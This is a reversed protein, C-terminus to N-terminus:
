LTVKFIEIEQNKYVLNFSQHNAFRTFMTLDSIVVYSINWAAIAKKYDFCSVQQESFGHNSESAQEQFGVSFEFHQSSGGQNDVVLEYFDSNEHLSVTNSSQNISFVLPIISKISQDTFVISNPYSQPAGSSIFPVNLWDFSANEIKSQVDLSVKAFESGEQITITKTVQLQENESTTVFSAWNSGNTVELHTITLQNLNLQMPEGNIRFLISINEGFISFFPHLVYSGSLRASLAVTNTGNDVYNIQIIGNDIFYDTTLINKAAKAPEIEHALILFQSNVAALTPRQAFGSLWWGYDADAVFVANEPTNNKIWQIADYKAPTMVQYYSSETL